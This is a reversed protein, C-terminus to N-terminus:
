RFKHATDGDRDYNSPFPAVGKESCFDGPSSWHPWISSGQSHPFGTSGDWSTVRAGLLTFAWQEKSKEEVGQDEVQEMAEGLRDLYSKVMVQNRLAHLDYASPM